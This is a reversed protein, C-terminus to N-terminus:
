APGTGREPRFLRDLEADLIRIALDPPCNEALIRVGLGDVLALLGVAAQDPDLSGAPREGAGAGRAARIRDAVFRQLQVSDRELVAAIEPSVAAYALFALAVRAEMLRTQDLPLLEVLIARVEAGPDPASRDGRATGYADVGYADAEAEAGGLDPEPTRQELRSRVRAHVAELAFLMMEDKTGFYHQVMGPSVDAEAAVHRLSVAELGRTAALRILANAIVARRQQHDVKKPM